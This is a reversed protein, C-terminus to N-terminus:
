INYALAVWVAEMGAKVMGRVSFRRWGKVAKAWMHPFEAIESRQGYLEKVARQKMRALYQKMAPSELVREVRRPGGRDGCCAQLHRCRRCDAARAAFVNRLVGHHVKQQIVVLTKGAPCTLKKGARQRGFASSAFEAESGNRKCAGAERSKDEKWPAILEVGLQSTQEM